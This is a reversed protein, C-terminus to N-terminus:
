LGLTARIADLDDTDEVDADPDLGAARLAERAQSRMQEWIEENYHHGGCVPGIDLLRSIRNTLTRGCRSCRKLHRGYLRAAAGSDEAIKKIIAVAAAFPRVETFDDSHQVSLVVYNPNRDGRWLRYFRLEGDANKVAYHGAPVEEPTPLDRQPTADDRKRETPRDARHPRELLRSIFESARRKTLGNVALPPTCDGHDENLLRQNAVREGLARAADAPLDREQLLSTLFNLQKTSAGPLTTTGEPAAPIEPAGESFTAAIRDPVAGTGPPPTLDYKPM